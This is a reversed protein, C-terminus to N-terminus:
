YQVGHDGYLLSIIKYLWIASHVVTMDFKQDIKKNWEFADPNKCTAQSKFDIKKRSLLM